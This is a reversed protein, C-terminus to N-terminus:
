FRPKIMVRAQIPRPNTPTAPTAAATSPAADHPPVSKTTPPPAPPLPPAPAVDLLEPLPPPVLEPLPPAVDLLADLPLELTHLELTVSCTAPHMSRLPIGLFAGAFTQTCLWFAM